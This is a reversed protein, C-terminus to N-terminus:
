QQVQTPKTIGNEELLKILEKTVNGSTIYYINKGGSVTIYVSDLIASSFIEKGELTILNYKESQCGVILNYDLVEIVGYTRSSSASQCGFSDYVFDTLQKGEIDFLAWKNNQKVPVIQNYLIYGNTVGNQEYSSVDIGIQEYEPYIIANGDEDLLGYLKSKSVVYLTDNKNSVTEISDYVLEVKTEKDISIIGKKSNSTVLFASTKRLYEIADYKTELITEGNTTIVGYYNNSSKVILM